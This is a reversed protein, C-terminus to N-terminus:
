HPVEWKLSEPTLRSLINAAVTHNVLYLAAVFIRIYQDAEPIEWLERPDDNYGDISLTVNARTNATCAASVLIASKAAREHSLEGKEGIIVMIEDYDEPNTM